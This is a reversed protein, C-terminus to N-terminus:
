IDHLTGPLGLDKSNSGQSWPLLSLYGRLHHQQSASRQQGCIWLDPWSGGMQSTIAWNPISPKQM